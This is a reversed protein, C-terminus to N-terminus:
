MWENRWKATMEGGDETQVTHRGRTFGPRWNATTYDLRSLANQGNVILTGAAFDAEIWDGAMLSGTITLAAKGDVTITLGGAHAQAMTQRITPRSPASGAIGLVASGQGSALSIATDYAIPRPLLFVIDVEAFGKKFEPASISKVIADYARGPRPTPELMGTEDGSSTAWAALLERVAWAEERSRGAINTRVIYEGQRIMVGCVIEGDTGGTTIVDRDAMGPPIEKNVSVAPHVNRIEIGNFRM